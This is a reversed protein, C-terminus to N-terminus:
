LMRVMPRSRHRQYEPPLESCMPAYLMAFSGMRKILRYGVNGHALLRLQEESNRLSVTHHWNIWVPQSSRLRKETVYRWYGGYLQKLGVIYFGCRMINQLSFINKPAVTSVIRDKNMATLAESLFYSLFQISNGRFEKDVVVYDTVATTQTPDASEGIAELAENVWQAGTKVTRACVLKEGHWVGLTFGDSSICRKIEEADSRVFIESSLGQAVRDHLAISQEAHEPKLFSVTCPVVQTKGKHSHRQLFISQSEQLITLM